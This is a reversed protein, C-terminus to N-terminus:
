GAPRVGVYRGQFLRVADFTRSGIMRCGLLRRSSAAVVAYGSPRGNPAVITARPQARQLDGLQRVFEPAADGRYEIVILGHRLAGGLARAHVPADYAAPKAAAGGGRRMAVALHDDRHLRRLECGAHRAAAPLARERVPPLAVTNARGDDREHFILTLAGAILAGACLWGLAYTAVAGVTRRGQHM